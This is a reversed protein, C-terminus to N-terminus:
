ALTGKFELVVISYENWFEQIISMDTGCNLPFLLRVELTECNGEQAKTRHM